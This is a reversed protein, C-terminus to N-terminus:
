DKRTGYIADILRCVRVTEKVDHVRVIDAGNIVSVAASALSGELREEKPLDLVKGIFTKRSAGVLLPRGLSRFERLRRLIDLNHHVEKGFGIGPDIIIKDRSIGNEEAERIQRALFMLIDGVVDEYAINLQMTQPDGLMHMIIVPVDLESVTRMMERDRLGSVDNVIEAGIEVAERAISPKRTDISIPIDISPIVEELIPIVREREVTEPIPTSFPRTSEGGIDIIDAGEDVMQFVRKIASERSFYAGGDFFSDPTVNLIGMVLTKDFKLSQNSLKIPETSLSRYNKLADLMIGVTPNDRYKTLNKYFSADGFVLYRGRGSKTSMRIDGGAGGILESLNSLDETECEAELYTFIFDEIEESSLTPPDIKLRSWEDLAEKYSLYSRIRAIM